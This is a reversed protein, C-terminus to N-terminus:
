YQYVFVPRRAILVVLLFSAYWCMYAPFGAILSCPGLCQVFSWVLASRVYAAMGRLISKGVDRGILTSPRVSFNLKKKKKILFIYQLVIVSCLLYYCLLPRRATMGHKFLLAAFVCVYVVGFIFIFIFVKGQTTSRSMLSRRQRSPWSIRRSRAGRSTCCPNMWPPRCAPHGFM